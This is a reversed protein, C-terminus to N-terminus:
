EMVGELAFMCERNKMIGTILEEMNYREILDRLRLIMKTNANKALKIVKWLNVGEEIILHEQMELFETILTKAEDSELISEMNEDLYFAVVDAIGKFGAEMEEPTLLASEKKSSSKKTNKECSYGYADVNVEDDTRDDLAKVVVESWWQRGIDSTPRADLVTSSRIVENIDKNVSFSLM